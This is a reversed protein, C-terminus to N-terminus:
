SLPPGCLPPLWNRPTSLVEVSELRRFVPIVRWTLLGLLFAIAAAVIGQAFTTVACSHDDTDAQNGQHDHDADASAPPVSKGHDAAHLMAHLQPSVAFVSLAFVLAM